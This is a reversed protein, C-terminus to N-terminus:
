IIKDAIASQCCYEKYLEKTTKTTEGDDNSWRMRDKLPFIPMPEYSNRNIWDAFEFAFHEMMRIVNSEIYLNDGDPEFTKQYPSCLHKLIAAAGANTNAIKNGTTKSRSKDNKNKEM